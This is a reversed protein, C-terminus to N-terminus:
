PPLTNIIKTIDSLKEITHDPPHEEKQMDKLSNFQSPIFVTRMGVGKAGQIDELPNDGVYITEYAKVRLRKLSEQFVKANPKRWGVAESVLVADFFGNIRLNGLAAYIVPAYTFNSLLGLKYNQSLRQLTSKAFSRLRLAELYSHFFANVAAKINEEQPTTAYGLYSLAESVWVANAVEVLQEYRIERYKQYTKKYAEFFSECNINYGDAVLSRFLEKEANELSYGVLETLTGIFDFIVARIKTM